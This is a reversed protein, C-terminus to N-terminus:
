EVTDDRFLAINAASLVCPRQLHCALWHPIRFQADGSAPRFSNAHHFGPDVELFGARPWVLLKMPVYDLARRSRRCPDRDAHGSKETM